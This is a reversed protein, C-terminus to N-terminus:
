LVVDGVNEQYPEALLPEFEAHFAQHEQTGKNQEWAERSSWLTVYWFVEQEKESEFLHSHDLGVQEVSNEYTRVAAVFADRQDSQVVFRAVHMFNASM